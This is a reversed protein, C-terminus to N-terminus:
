PLHPRPVRPQRRAARLTVRRRTTPRRRPALLSRLRGAAVRRGSGRGAADVPPVTPAQPPAPPQTFARAFAARDEEIRRQLAPAPPEVFQRQVELERHPFEPAVVDLSARAERPSGDGEPVLAAIAMPGGPTEVPLGAIAVWRGPEEFFALDRGAVSARPREAAGRVVVLFADGPRARLPHVAVVPRAPAAALALALALALV